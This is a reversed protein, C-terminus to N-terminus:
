ALLPQFSGSGPSCFPCGSGHPRFSEFLYFGCLAVSLCILILNDFTLSLSLIKFAALTFLSKVYFPVGMLSDASKVASLKWALLSHSSINLINFSFFHWGLITYGSFSDKLLLPPTFVKRFVCFSLSNMVVLSTNCSTSFVSHFYLSVVEYFILLYCLVWQYNYM